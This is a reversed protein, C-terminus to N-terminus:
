EETWQVSYVTNRDPIYARGSKWMDTLFLSIAQISCVYLLCDFICIFLDIISPVGGGGWEYDSFRNPPM